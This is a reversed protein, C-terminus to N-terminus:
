IILFFQKITIKLSVRKIFILWVGYLLVAFFYPYFLVSNVGLGHSYMPLAFLPNTGYSVAAIISIIYGKISSKKM